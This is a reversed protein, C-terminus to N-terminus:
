AAPTSPTGAGLDIWRGLDISNVQAAEPEDPVQDIPATCHALCPANGAPNAIPLSLTLFRTSSGRASTMVRETLYGCPRTVVRTAVTWVHRRLREPYIERADMGTLNQGMGHERNTAYLRILMRNGTLDIDLLAIRPQVIPDVRDLFTALTPCISDSRRPLRNWHAAFRDILIRASGEIEDVAPKAWLQDIAMM